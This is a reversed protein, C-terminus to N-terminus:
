RATLESVADPVASMAQPRHAFEEILRRTVSPALLAEGEAVVRIERDVTKKSM